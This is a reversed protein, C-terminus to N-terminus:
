EYILEDLKTLCKILLGEEKEPVSLVNKIYSKIKKLSKLTKSGIESSKEQYILTDGEFVKYDDTIGTLMISSKIADVKLRAEEWDKAYIDLGWTDGNFEYSYSFKNWIEKAM